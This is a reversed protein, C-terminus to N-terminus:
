ARDREREKDCTPDAFNTGHSILQLSRVNSWAEAVGEGANFITGSHAAMGSEERRTATEADSTTAARPM